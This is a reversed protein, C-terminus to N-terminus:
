NALEAHWKRFGGECIEAADVIATLYDSRVHYCDQLDRSDMKLALPNVAARSTNWAVLYPCQYFRLRQIFILADLSHILYKVNLLLLKYRKRLQFRHHLLAM